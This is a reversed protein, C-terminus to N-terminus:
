ARVLAEAAQEVLLRADAVADRAVVPDVDDVRADVLGRLRGPDGHFQQLALVEARVDAPCTRESLRARGLDEGLDAVRERGRM